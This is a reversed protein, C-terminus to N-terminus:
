PRRLAPRQRRTALVYLLLAGSAILMRATVLTLPGLLPVAIRILLFSMGWIAALLMLAGFEQRKM